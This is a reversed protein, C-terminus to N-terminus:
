RKARAREAVGGAARGDLEKGEACAAEKLEEELRAGIVRGVLGQPPQQGGVDEDDVVKPEAAEVRSLRAVEVLDDEFPMSARRRDERAISRDVLPDREEVVGVERLRRDVAKRVVGVLDDDLALAVPFALARAPWARVRRTWRGRGPPTSPARRASLCWVGVHEPGVNDALTMPWRGRDQVLNPM